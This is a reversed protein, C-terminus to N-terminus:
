QQEIQDAIHKARVGIQNTVESDSPSIGDDEMSLRVMEKVLNSSDGGSPHVHYFGRAQIDKAAVNEFCKNLFDQIEEDQFHSIAIGVDIRHEVPANKLKDDLCKLLKKIM